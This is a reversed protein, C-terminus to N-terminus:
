VYIKSSFSLIIEEPGTVLGALSDAILRNCGASCRDEPRGPVAFVDKGYEFSLKATILSGSREGAEIVVLADSLGAIIRNRKPFNGPVPPTGPPYESIVGGDKLLTEYLARSSEPYAMDCGCGLVAFSRGKESIAATQAANDIGRAMGSIIQIGAESLVKGFHEARTKGNETCGRSGVIGASFVTEEPTKGLVYLAPPPDFIRELRKPYGEDTITVIRIGKEKSLIYSREANEKIEESLVDKFIAFVIDTRTEEWGSARLLETLGNKRKVEYLKKLDVKKFIQAKVGSPVTPFFNLWHLLFKQKENRDESKM